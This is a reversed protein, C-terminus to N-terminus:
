NVPFDVGTLQESVVWLKQAVRDDQARKTRGVPKPAGNMELFGSPGYYGNPTAEGATAAFLTPLAGDAPEQAFWRNLLKFAGSNDQLNTATWGPHAATVMTAYGAESLRRQLESTFLLNALKSQGYAAWARYGKSADLNDFDIRGSKHAMSSVNVVRSDDTELLRPLLHATLAFHGLHNTGFQLEFGDKTTSKPPVMVGANNILLDLRDHAALFAEAFARVSALDSLDLAMLEATGAPQGGLIEALAAGGKEQNRCALVVHAGKETLAKATEFGIGSNAGTVIATRGTQAPIDDHTWPM